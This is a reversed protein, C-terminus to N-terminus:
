HINVKIECRFIWTLLPTSAVNTWSRSVPKICASGCGPLKRQVEDPSIPNTNNRERDLRFLQYSEKTLYIFSKKFKYSLNKSKPKSQWISFLCWNAISAEITWITFPSQADRTLARISISITLGPVFIRSTVMTYYECRLNQNDRLLINSGFLLMRIHVTKTTHFADKKLKHERLLM